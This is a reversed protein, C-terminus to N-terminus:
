WIGHGSEIPLPCITDDRNARLAASANGRRPSEKQRGVPGEPMKREAPGDPGVTEDRGKGGEM